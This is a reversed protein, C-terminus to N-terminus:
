ITIAAVVIVNKALGRSEATAQLRNLKAVEATPAV